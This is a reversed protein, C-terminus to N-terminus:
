SRLASAQGEEGCRREVGEQLASSIRSRGLPDCSVTSYRSSFLKLTGMRTALFSPSPM